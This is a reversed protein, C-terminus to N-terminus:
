QGAEQESAYDSLVRERLFRLRTRLEEAVESTPELPATGDVTEVPILDDIPEGADVAEVWREMEDVYGELATASTPANDIVLYAPPLDGVIVWLWEDVGDQAPDIKFLLVAVVGGIAIEGVYCEQIARCWDFASLYSRARAFMEKLLADDEADEGTFQDCPELAAFDVPSHM